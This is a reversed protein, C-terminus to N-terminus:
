SKNTSFIITLSRSFYQCWYGGPPLISLAASNRSSAVHAADDVEAGSRGFTVTVVWGVEVGADLPALSKVLM